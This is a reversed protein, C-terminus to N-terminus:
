ELHHFAGPNKKGKRVCKQVYRFLMINVGFVGTYVYFSYHLEWGKYSFVHFLLSLGELGATFLSWGLVYGVLKWGKPQWRDYLYLVLYAMPPYTLVYILFDAIEYQPFDNIDYLDYPKIAIILDIMQALYFNFAVIVVLTLLSFRRPLAFAVAIELATVTLLFWENADFHKPPYLIM